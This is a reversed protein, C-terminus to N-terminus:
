RRAATRRQSLVEVAVRNRGARKAAYLAADAAAVMRATDARRTGLEAVGFSATVRVQDRAPSFATEIRHRLREALRQAGALDTERALVAFEEGGLRYATDSRRLAETMVRGTRRLVEDGFLHGHTDNIEKFRDLDVMVLSVPNGHRRSRERETALDDDFARRNPLRTLPDLRILELQEAHRRAAEKLQRDAEELGQCVLTLTRVAADVIRLPGTSVDLEGLARPTSM